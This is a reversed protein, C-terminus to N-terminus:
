VHVLEKHLYEIALRDEDRFLQWGRSNKHIVFLVGETNEYAALGIGSLAKATALERNLWRCFAVKHITIICRQWDRFRRDKGFEFYTPLMWDVYYHGAMVLCPIKLDVNIPLEIVISNTVALQWTVNGPCRPTLKTTLPM